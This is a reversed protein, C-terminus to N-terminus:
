QSAASAPGMPPMPTTAPPTTPMPTPTTTTAPPTVPTEAARQDCGSLAFAALGLSLAALRLNRTNTQKNM